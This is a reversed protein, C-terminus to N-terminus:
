FTGKGLAVPMPPLCWLSLVPPSQSPPIFASASFLDTRSQNDYHTLSRPLVIDETIISIVSGQLLIHHVKRRCKPLPPQSSLQGKSIVQVEHIRLIKLVKQEPSWPHEGRSTPTITIPHSLVSLFSMLITRKLRANMTVPHKIRVGSRQM